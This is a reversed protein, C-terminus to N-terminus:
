NAKMMELTGGEVVESIGQNGSIM